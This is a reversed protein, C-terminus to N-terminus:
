SWVEAGRAEAHHHLPVEVIAVAGGDPSEDLELRHDPGYLRRLRERTNGLGIGERRSAVGPGTDRVTLRVRPGAGGDVVCVAVDVRAPGPRRECGHRIANEALPQLILRPVLADLARPEVDVTRALRGGFRTEEISLYQDVLSLEDRVSVEHAGADGHLLARLLDGLQGLTRIADPGAGTRIQASVTNLANFLFHPRLQLELAHLQSQALAEALQAERARRGQYLSQYALAHGCAIVAFYSYVNIFLQAGLLASVSSTPAPLGLAGLGITVAVDVVHIALACGTHVLLARAWHARTIPVRRALWFMLPTLLAWLWVSQFTICVSDLDIGGAGDAARRAAAGGSVLV